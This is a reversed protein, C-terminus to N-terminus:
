KEQKSKISSRSQLEDPTPQVGRIRKAETYLYDSYKYCAFFDKKHLLELKHQKLFIMVGTEKSLRTVYDSALNKYRKNLRKSVLLTRCLFLSSCKKNDKTVYKRIYGVVQQINRIRKVDLLAPHAPIRFLKSLRGLEHKFDFLKTGESYQLVIHYHIDETPQGFKGGTGGTQRELVCVYDTFNRGKLWRGIAANLEKDSLGSEHQKTTVTIFFLEDKQQKRENEYHMFNILTKIKKATRLSKKNYWKKNSVPTLTGCYECRVMKYHHGETNRRKGDYVYVISKNLSDFTLSM